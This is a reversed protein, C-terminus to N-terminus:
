PLGLFRSADRLYVRTFRCHKGECIEQCARGVDAWANLAVRGSFHTHWLSSIYRMSTLRLFVKKHILFISLRSFVNPSIHESSFCAGCRYIHRMDMIVRERVIIWIRSSM